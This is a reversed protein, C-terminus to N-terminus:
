DIMLEDYRIKAYNAEGCASTSQGINGLSLAAFWNKGSESREANINGKSYFLLIPINVISLFLFFWALAKTSMLFLSPGIGIQKAMDSTPKKCCKCVPLAGLNEM